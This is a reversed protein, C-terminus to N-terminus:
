RAARRRRSAAFGLGVLGVLAAAASPEPIVTPTGFVDIERYLKGNDGGGTTLFTFRVRDINMAEGATFSSSVSVSRYREDSGANPNANNFLSTDLNNVLTTFTNSGVQAVELRYNQTTARFEADFSGSVTTISTLDFGGNLTLQLVTTLAEDADHVPRFAGSYNYDNAQGNFYGFGGDSLINPGSAPTNGGTANSGQIITWSVFSSQDSNALDTASTAQAENILVPAYTIIVAASATSAFLGAAAVLTLLRTTHSPTNM